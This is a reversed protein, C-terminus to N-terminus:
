EIQEKAKLLPFITTLIILAAVSFLLSPPIFGPINDIVIPEGFNSALLGGILPGVSMGILVTFLIFYGNFQGRKEEPSLDKYWTRVSIDFGMMGLLWGIATIAVTLPTRAFSFLM